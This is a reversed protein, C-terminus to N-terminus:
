CAAERAQAHGGRLARTYAVHGKGPFSIPGFQLGPVTKALARVAADAKAKSMELTLTKILSVSENIQKSVVCGSTGHIKAVMIQNVITGGGMETSGFQVMARVAGGAFENQIHGIIRGDLPESVYCMTTLATGADGSRVKNVNKGLVAQVDDFTSHEIKLGFIDLGLTAGIDPVNGNAAPKRDMKADAAMASISMCIGLLISVTKIIM